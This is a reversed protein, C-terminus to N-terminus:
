PVVSFVYDFTADGRTFSDQILTENDKLTGDGTPSAFWGGFGVLVHPTTSPAEGPCEITLDSYWGTAAGGSYTAPVNNYNITVMGSTGTIGDYDDPQIQYTSPELTASCGPQVYKASVIGGIPRYFAFNNGSLVLDQKWVVNSATYEYRPATDILGSRIIASSGGRLESECATKLATAKFTVPIDQGAVRQHNSFIFWIRELKEEPRYVCFRLESKGNLDRPVSEWTGNIKVLADVDLGDKQLAQLDFRVQKIEPDNPVDIEYYGAALPKLPADLPLEQDTTSTMNLYKAYHPVPPGDPFAPDIGVYRQERPLPDGPLFKINLNRLAFRRFDTAFPVVSNLVDNLATETTVGDFQKWTQAIASANARQEMFLPWLYSDYQAYGATDLLGGERYQFGYAGHASGTATATEAPGGAFRELHLGTNEAPRVPITRNFYFSAWTASAESFWNRTIYNRTNQLVHFFEHILTLQFDPQRVRWEPMQIYSSSTTGAYPPVDFTVGRVGQVAAEDVGSRIRIAGAPIVYIDTAGDPSVTGAQTTDEIPPGMLATMAPYITDIMAIMRALDDEAGTNRVDGPCLVWVRAPKTAHKTIWEAKGLTCTEPFPAPANAQAQSTVKLAAQSTLGFRVSAFSRPDSPRVTYPLLQDLIATSLSGANDNIDTLLQNDEEESGSGAFEPPLRDDGYLAYARYVLSTGLDIRGAALAAEILAQSSRQGPVVKVILPATRSQSGGVANVTLDLDGLPVDSEVRLTMLGSDAQNLTIGNLTVGAPPNLLSIEIPDAFGNTRKVQVSLFSGTGRQATMTPTDLVVEFGPLPAPGSSVVLDVATGPAVSTGASPSQRIITGAPVSDSAEQTVAGAILNASTLATTAAAQTIGTVDPVTVNPIVIPVPTVVVSASDNAANSDAPISASLSATNTYSGSARVTATITLTAGAGSSVAGVTWAGTTSSYSGQTPNASVFTYGNPLVDTVTVGTANSPGNNGVTVTFTVDTGVTSTANSVSKAVALDSSVVNLTAAAPTSDNGGSDRVVLQLAYRGAVNPVFTRSPTNQGVAVGVALGNSTVYGAPASVLAFTYHVVTGPAVDTSANGDLTVTAGANAPNPTVDLAASPSSNDVFSVTVTVGATATGGLGDSITYSFADNGSFGATPTYRVQTGQIVATGHAPTTVSQVSLTDHDADTDNALVSISVPTNSSTTATDDVAVPAANTANANVTAPASDAHGDNVILQSTYLGPLDATFIPNIAFPDSLKATSGAPQNLLSWTFGLPDNDPDSSASGDLQVVSGAHVTQDTGANATPPSNQTTVLVTDYSSAKGDSVTLQIVYDGRKDVAFSPQASDAAALTATSGTPRSLMSWAYTLVDGADPDSSGRGDLNATSGLLATQDAGANAIPASNAPRTTIVITDPTGSVTGDDVVLEVVYQGAVDPTFRPTPTSPNSLTAASGAPRSMLNWAYTLTNGDVDSSLTGNLQVLDGIFVTQDAGANAVPASNQTTITVTDAASDQKGDNVILQLVYSGPRDITFTPRVATTSSLAATSAAPRSAFSWKYTLANGDGDTSASGDLTVLSGVYVTQDAGANSVPAQNGGCNDCNISWRLGALATSAFSYIQALNKPKVQAPLIVRLTFTDQSTVPWVKALPVNGFSVLGDLVAVGAASSTLTASVNRALDGRNLVGARAVIEIIPKPQNAVQKIQVLQYGLPSISLLPAAWAIGVSLLIALMVLGGHKLRRQMKM